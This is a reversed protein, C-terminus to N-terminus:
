DKKPPPPPPPPPPPVKPPPTLGKEVKNPAPVKPIPTAGREENEARLMAVMPIPTAGGTLVDPM